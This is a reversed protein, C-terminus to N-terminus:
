YSTGIAKSVRLNLKNHQIMWFRRRIYYFTDESLDWLQIRSRHTQQSLNLLGRRSEFASCDYIAVKLVDTERIIISFIENEEEVRQVQLFM